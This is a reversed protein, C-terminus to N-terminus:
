LQAQWETLAMALSENLWTEFNDRTQRDADKYTFIFSRDNIFMPESAAMGGDSTDRYESFLTAASVGTFERGVPHISVVINFITKETELDQGSQIKLRRWRNDDRLDAYYNYKQAGKILQSRFWEGGHSHDASSDSLVSLNRSGTQFLKSLDDALANIKQGTLAMYDDAIQRVRRQEESQQDRLPRLKEGIAALATDITRTADLLSSSINMAALFSKRESQAFFDVLNKLNGNDATELAKLYESREDCSVILPFWGAKILILTALARAVRGNGDQFPHIQAFRHHLWAAEIEPPVGSKEHEKHWALLQDMESAVHEPPCYEHILGDPRTPNNPLRKWLGRELGVKQRRGFTDIAETTEQSRTLTQHIEKIYSTSLPRDNKIFAFLGEIVEQQDLMLAKTQGPEKLDAEHLNDLIELGHAILTQTLGRDFKYLNEIMGTEISWERKLRTMFEDLLQSNLRGKQEKWVEALHKLRSSGLSQWNAPLDNIQKWQHHVAASM